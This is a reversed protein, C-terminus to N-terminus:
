GVEGGRVAVSGPKRTKKTGEKEGKELGFTYIYLAELNEFRGWCVHASYRLLTGRWGLIEQLEM